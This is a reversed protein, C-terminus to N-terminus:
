TQTLKPLNFDKNQNLKISQAYSASKNFWPIKMYLSIGWM